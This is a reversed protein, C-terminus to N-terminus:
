ACEPATGRPTHRRRPARGQERSRERGQQGRRQTGRRGDPGPRRGVVAAGRERALPSAAGGPVRGRHPDPLAHQEAVVVHQPEARQKGDLDPAIAVGEEVLPHSHLDAGAVPAIRHRLEVRPRGLAVGARGPEVALAVQRAVHRPQRKRRLRDIRLGAVGARAPGPVQLPAVPPRPRRPAKAEDVHRAPHPPDLGVLAAPVEDLGGTAGVQGARAVRQGNALAGLPDGPPAEFLRGAGAVEGPSLQARQLAGQAERQGVVREDVHGGHALHAAGPAAPHIADVHGAVPSGAVGAAAAQGHPALQAPADVRGGRLGDRGRLAQAAAELAVRETGVGVGPPDQGFALHQRREVHGVGAIGFVPLAVEPRATQRRAVVAPVHAPGHHDLAECLLAAAVEVQQRDPDVVLGLLGEIHHGPPLAPRTQDLDAHQQVAEAPVQGAVRAPRRALLCEHEVGDRRDEEVDGVPAAAPAALGEVEGRHRAALARQPTEGRRAEQGAPASRPGHPLDLAAEPVGRGAQPGALPRQRRREQLRERGRSQQHARLRARAHRRAANTRLLLAHGGDGLLVGHISVPALAPHRWVPVPLRVRHDPEADRPGPLLRHLGCLHLARQGSRQLHLGGPLRDPLQLVVPQQLLVHPQPEPLQHVHAPGGLRHPQDRRHEVRGGPLRQGLLALGRDLHVGRELQDEDPGRRLGDLLRTRQAERLAARARGRQALHVRPPRLARQRRRPDHEAYRRGRRLIGERQPLVPADRLLLPGEAPRPQLRLVGQGPHALSQRRWRRADPRGPGQREQRVVLRGPVAHLELLAGGAREPVDARLPNGRAAARGDGRGSLRGDDIVATQRAGLFEDVVDRNYWTGCNDIPRPVTSGPDFVFSVPSEICGAMPHILPLEELTVRRADCIFRTGTGSDPIGAQGIPCNKAILADGPVVQSTSARNCLEIEDAMGPAGGFVSVNVLEGNSRRVRTGVVCGDVSPLYGPEFEVVVSFDPNPSNPNAVSVRLSQIGRCGPLKVLSGPRNCVPGGQFGVTGPQPIKDTAFHGPLTGEVGPWSQELVSAEMNLFDMGGFRGHIKSGKLRLPVVADDNPDDTGNRDLVSDVSTDCRTGWFPGCGLLARQENTLSEDVSITDINASLPTLGLMINDTLTRVGDFGGLDCPTAPDEDACGAIDVTGNNNRDFPASTATQLNGPDDLDGGPDVACVESGDSGRTVQTTGSPCTVRPDNFLANISKLPAPPLPSLNPDSLKLNDDVRVLIGQTNGNQDGAVVAAILEAFPTPVEDNLFEPSAFITWACSGPDLTAGIGITSSCTWAFIQQNAHHNYLANTQQLLETDFRFAGPEGPAGGPRLCGPDRGTGGRFTEVTQAIFVEDFGLRQTVLAAGPTMSLPHSAYSSNYALVGPGQTDGHLHDPAVEGASACSGATEGILRAALPRGTAPDVNREFYFIADTFPTDDYGYFNTLAFSFRDWRWEIRGGIELGGIDRWPDEPRDIGAVGVGLTGHAFIGNTITCVVDPTYPEGCAGLDAPEFKDFNFALELRVDELPGVDYLSYVFRASWLAIRSEELSPLSALALDQPNFQDTTRFLETKGWVINQLGLRMWLRSDLMEIDVYAEKIEKTRQQSAGRNFSREVQSFNFNLSDLDDNAIERQLGRSPLYSGQAVAGTSVGARRAAEALDAGLSAVDPAPRFPNEGSGGVLRAVLGEQYTANPDRNAGTGRHAGLVCFSGPPPRGTSKRVQRAIGDLSDPTRDEEDKPDVCPVVGSFDGGFVDPVIDRFLQGGVDLFVDRPDDASPGSLQIFEIFKDRPDIRTPTFGDALADRLIPDAVPDDFRAGEYFRYGDYSTEMRTFFGSQVGRRDGIANPLVRGRLPHAVDRNLAIARIFNKPLWPGLIQTSAASSAPGRFDKFAFAYDLAHQNAYRAPDDSTREPVGFKFAESEVIQGSDESAKGNIRAGVIGDSVDGLRNDHGAERFFTDFGPYGEREGPHCPGATADCEPGVPAPQLDSIRPWVRRNDGAKWTTAPQTGGYEVDRADRLREPLRSSFNGYTNVSPFMGFGQSYIADYRGEIRVYAQLLDFPGIGDPALDAEFELNVVNYWQALDLEQSFRENLARVQMEVFGHMQLRGDFAEVAGAGTGSTVGVAVGALLAPARLAAALGRSSGTM